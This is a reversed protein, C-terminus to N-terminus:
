SGQEGVRGLRFSRHRESYGQHPKPIRKPRFPSRLFGLTLEFADVASDGLTANVLEALLRSGRHATAGATAPEASGPAVRAAAAPSGGPSRPTATM